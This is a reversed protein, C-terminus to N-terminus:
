EIRWLPRRKELYADLGERAEGSRLNRLAAQIPDAPDRIWQLVHSITDPPAAALLSATSFARDELESPQTIEHILGWALADASNFVRGTATLELARRPGLAREIAQWGLYPWLGTRIETFGFSTGQAALAVHASAVLEAAAGLAAGRVAVVLPKSSHLGFSLLRQVTELEVADSQLLASSLELGSSFMPGEAELLISGVALDSGARELAALLASVAASDLSNKADPRRLCIRAVRSDLDCTVTKMEMKLKRLPDTNFASQLNLSDMEIISSDEYYIPGGARLIKSVGDLAEL